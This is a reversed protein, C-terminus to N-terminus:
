PLDLNNPNDIGGTISLGYSGSAVCQSPDADYAYTQEDAVIDDQILYCGGNSGLRAFVVVDASARWGSVVTEGTSAGDTIREDLATLDEVLNAPYQYQNGPRSAVQRAKAVYGTLSMNQTKRNTAQRVAHYTPVAITSLIGLVVLVVVVETLTFGRKGRQGTRHM